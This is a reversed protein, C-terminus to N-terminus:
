AGRAMTEFSGRVNRQQWQNQGAVHRVFRAVHGREGHAFIQQGQEALGARQQIAMENQARTKVAALIELARQEKLVSLDGCLYAPPKGVFHALKM